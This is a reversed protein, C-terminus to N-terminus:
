NFYSIKLIDLYCLNKGERVERITNCFECDGCLRVDEMVTIMGGLLMIFCQKYYEGSETGHRQFM